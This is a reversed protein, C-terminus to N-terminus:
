TEMLVLVNDAESLRLSLVYNAVKIAVPCGLPAHILVQVPEGPLCGMEYLKLKIDANMIAHIIGTQGPKLETLKM